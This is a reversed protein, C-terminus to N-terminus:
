HLIAQLDYDMLLNMLKTRHIFNKNELRIRILIANYFSIFFSTVM